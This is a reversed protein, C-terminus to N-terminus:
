NIVSFVNEIESPLVSGHIFWLTIENVPLKEQCLQVELTISRNCQCMQINSQVAQRDQRCRCFTIIIGAFLDTAKTRCRDNRLNKILLLEVAVAM